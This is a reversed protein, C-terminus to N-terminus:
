FSYKLQVNTEHVERTVGSPPLSDWNSQLKWQLHLQENIPLSVQAQLLAKVDDVNALDPQIYVTVSTSIAREGANQYLWHSYLNGRFRQEVQTSGLDVERVQENFVGIGQYSEGSSQKQETQPKFWSRFRVGVGELARRKIGSFPAQEYQLFYETAIVQQHNHIVRTHFFTQDNSTIGNNRQYDRSYWNLWKVTENNWRIHSGIGLDTEDNNGSKGNFKLRVHGNWGEESKATREKEINTIAFSQCSFFSISTILFINVLSHNRM